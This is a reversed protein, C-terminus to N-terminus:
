APTGPFGPELIGGALRQCRPAYEHLAAVLRDLAPHRLGEVALQTRLQEALEPLTAALTRLDSLAADRDLQLEGILHLWDAHRIEWWRYHSGIKMASAIKRVPLSDYPFASAIDYLPALRVRGGAGILLSYNKAHADTAALLWNFVLARFFTRLDETPRSSQSRLLLGIERPGPGGQNQYKRAPHVALAQCLDEQHVRHWRGDVRVRDYREVSLAIEDGFRLVQSRAAPLGVSRALALCFHENTAFGDYADGPPKLIHTTPIRGRPIGWHDEEHLLATKSQAGALSFQGLDTATRGTGGHERLERLRQEIQAEDLWEVDDDGGAQLTEVRAEEAFQVAGACDEGICGLLGLVNRPSVHFRAAWQQLVRDNDPLLGWLVADVVDPAHATAALPLSLSLPLATPADRWAPEYQFHPRGRRDAALRGARRGEILVVLEPKM